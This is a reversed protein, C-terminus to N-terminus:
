VKQESQLKMSIWNETVFDFIGKKILVKYSSPFSWFLGFCFINQFLVVNLAAKQTNRQTDKLDGEREM